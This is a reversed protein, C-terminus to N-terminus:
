KRREIPYDNDFAKPRDPHISDDDEDFAPVLFVHEIEGPSYRGGNLFCAYAAAEYEYAFSPGLWDWTGSAPCHYGARWSGGEDKRYSHM